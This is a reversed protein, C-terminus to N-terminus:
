RSVICIFAHDGVGRKEDLEEFCETTGRGRREGSGGRRGKGRGSGGSTRVRGGEEVEERGNAEEREGEKV